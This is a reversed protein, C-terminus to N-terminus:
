KIREVNILQVPKLGNFKITYCFMKTYGAEFHEVETPKFCNLWISSKSLNGLQNITKDEIPSFVKEEILKNKQM